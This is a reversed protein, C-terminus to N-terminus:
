LISEERFYRWRAVLLTAVIAGASNLLVDRWDSVRGVIGLQVLEIFLSLSPGLSGLVIIRVGPWVRAILLPLPVLLILNLVREVSGTIDLFWLFGLGYEEDRPTLTLACVGLLYYSLLLSYVKRHTKMAYETRTSPQKVM